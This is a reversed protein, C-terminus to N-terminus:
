FLQSRLPSKNSLVLPGPRSRSVNVPKAPLFWTWHPQHFCRKSRLAVTQPGLDESTATLWRCSSPAPRRCEFSAFNVKFRSRCNLNAGLLARLSLSSPWDPQPERWATATSGLRRRWDGLFPFVRPTPRLSEAFKITLRAMRSHPSRGGLRLLGSITPRESRHLPLREAARVAQSPGSSESQCIAHICTGSRDPAEILRRAM